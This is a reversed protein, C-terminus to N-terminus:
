DRLKPLISTSLKILSLDEILDYPWSSVNTRHLYLPCSINILHVVNLFVQGELLGNGTIVVDSGRPFRRYNDAKRPCQLTKKYNYM